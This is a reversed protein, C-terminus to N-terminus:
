SNCSDGKQSISKSVSQSKSFDVYPEATNVNSEEFFNESPKDLSISMLPSIHNCSSNNHRNTDCNIGYENSSLRQSCDSSSNSQIFDNYHIDHDRVKVYPLPVPYFFRPGSRKPIDYGDFNRNYSRNSIYSPRHKKSLSSYVRKNDYTPRADADVYDEAQKKNRQPSQEDVYDKDEHCKGMKLDDIYNKREVAYGRADKFKELADEPSYNLRDIMYRCVLYGTRNVGHTCHTGILLDNDTNRKLFEDIVAFFEARVFSSPVVHGETFIKRYEINSNLIVEKKYYRTTNTLDIIIGIKLGDDTTQKLLVEPTFKNENTVNYCIEENLPVKFPFFRTGTIPKSYPTYDEWRDPIKGM